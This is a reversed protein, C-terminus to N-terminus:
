FNRCFMINIFWVGRICSISRDLYNIYFLGSPKFSNFIFPYVQLRVVIKVLIVVVDKRVEQKSKQM